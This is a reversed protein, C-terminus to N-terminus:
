WGPSGHPARAPLAALLGCAAVALAATVAFAFQPGNPGQDWLWGTLLGAPLAMLGQVLAYWGFAGGHRGPPALRAVLAREAPEALGYAVGVGVVLALTALMGTTVALGAYSLAFATWGLALALRPSTVDALRGARTAVGSKALSMGFWVLPVLAPPTGTEAVRLLLFQESAAGLAWVAVAALLWRQSGSLGAALARPTPAPSTRGPDRVFTWIVALTALGPLVALLFLTRERGPFALLFLMAALPGVAAGAHDLARIHGFAAGRRDPAVLDAVLADRPATRIGKGFRDAARVVLVHLPSGALGMLPRVLASFGYGLLVLPRRGVSDSLAGSTLRVVAAVANAIGDILGIELSTGGLGKVFGPLLPYIAESSLDTLFSTWGLARVTAPLAPGGVPAPPPGAAASM